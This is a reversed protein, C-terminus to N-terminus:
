GCSIGYVWINWIDFNCKVINGQSFNGLDRGNEIVLFGNELINVIASSYWGIFALSTILLTIRLKKWLHKDGVKPKTM